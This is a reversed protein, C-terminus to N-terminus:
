QERKLSFGMYYIGREENVMLAGAPALYKAVAAFPPLPNDKLAAALAAAVPSREAQRGLREHTRESAAMEWLVRMTEEPRRFSAMGASGGPSEKRIKSAILKYDLENAL